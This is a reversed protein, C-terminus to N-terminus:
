LYRARAVSVLASETMPSVPRASVALGWTEVTQSPMVSKKTTRREVEAPLIKLPRPPKPCHHDHSTVGGGAGGVNPRTQSPSMLYTRCSPPRDLRNYHSNYFLILALARGQLCHRPQKRRSPTPAIGPRKPGTRRDTQGLAVRLLVRHPCALPTPQRQPKPHPAHNSTSLHMQSPAQTTQDQELQQVTHM